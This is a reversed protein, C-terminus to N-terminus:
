RRKLRDLLRPNSWGPQIDEVMVTHRDVSKHEDDPASVVVQVWRCVTENSLDNLITTALEEVSVWKETGLAKLYTDFADSRLIWKDPVYRVEITSPGAKDPHATHGKLDVVYDHNRDPNTETKVLDRRERLDM